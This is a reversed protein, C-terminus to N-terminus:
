SVKELKNESSFDTCRVSDCCGPYQSSCKALMDILSGTLLFCSDNVSYLTEQLLTDSHM